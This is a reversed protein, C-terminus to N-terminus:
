FDYGMLEAIKKPVDTNDLVGHFTNAGKGFAFLPIPNATHGGTSSISRIRKDVIGAYHHKAILSGLEWAAHHEKYVVEQVNMVRENFRKIEKDTLDINTYQKVIAKVSKPEFMSSEPMKKFKSVMFSPTAKVEKLGAINLPETASIGMTEHDAVVIVLTNGDKKAWEVAYKVAHDFEIVEKWISTLDAAHAAHDIRAGEAMLFFGKEDEALFEIAKETMEKLSPEQSKLLHRDLKFNMYSPHFLGLLKKGKASLLENRNSVFTYGNHMAEKILDKGHQHHPRFFDAGGGLLVDVKNKLQQRAIDNQGTWRNNVSATFAAPTADTVTNTSIVGTKKGNKKFVDLISDAEQGDPTVGIMGNNTKKGIALATGGAASDTVAHDASYTHVFSVYPLSELFLRGEKGYEMQRALEIQGVGMGDGIMVIVNKPTSENGVTHRHEIEEAYTMSFFGIGLLFIILFLYIKIKKM